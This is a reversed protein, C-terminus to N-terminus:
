WISKVLDLEDDELNWARSDVRGTEEVTKRVIESTWTRHLETSEELKNLDDTFELLLYKAGTKSHLIAELEDSTFVQCWFSPCGQVETKDDTIFYKFEEIM